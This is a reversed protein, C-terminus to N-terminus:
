RNTILSENCGQRTSGADVMANRGLLRGAASLLFMAAEAVEATDVTRRLPARDRYHQLIASFGSIGIGCRRSRAPRYRTPRSDRKPWPRGRSLAAPKSRLRLRMVNYNQFVRESGLYTLTLVSRARKEM